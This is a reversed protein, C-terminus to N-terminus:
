KPMEFPLPRGLLEEWKPMGEERTGWGGVECEFFDSKHGRQTLWDAFSKGHETLSVNDRLDITLLGADPLKQCLTAVSFNGQGSRGDKFGYQFKIWWGGGSGRKLSRNNEHMLILFQESADELLDHIIQYKANEDVSASLPSPPKSGLKDIANKIMTSAAGLASQHNGRVPPVYEARTVGALDSPLKMNASRDCVIFTREQGLAALFMGLELLVNDRPSAQEEGRSRVLDDPTCVLIAFDYNDLSKLLTDLTGGGLGFVGESWIQTECSYDLNQQIAQAIPLGEASSGIFTSARRADTPKSSTTM